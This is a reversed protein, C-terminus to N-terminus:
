INWPQAELLADILIQDSDLWQDLVEKEFTYNGEKLTKGEDNLLTWQAIGNPYNLHFIGKTASTNFFSIPTELEFHVM